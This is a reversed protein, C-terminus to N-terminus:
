IRKKRSSKEEDEFSLGMKKKELTGIILGAPNTYKKSSNINKLLDYIREGKHNIEIISENDEILKLILEVKNNISEEHYYNRLNKIHYFLADEGYQSINNIQINNIKCIEYDAVSNIFYLIGENKNNKFHMFSSLNDIKLDLSIHKRERIANIFRDKDMKKIYTWNINDEPIYKSIIRMKNLFDCDNQIFELLDNKLLDEIFNKVIQKERKQKIKLNIGIIKNKDNYKVFNHFNSKFIEVKNKLNLEKKVDNVLICLLEKLGKENKLLFDIKEAENKLIENIFFIHHKDSCNSTLIPIMMNDFFEYDHDEFLKLLKIIINKILYDNECSNEYANLLFLNKVIKSTLERKEKIDFPVNLRNLEKAYSLIDIIEKKIEKIPCEKKEAKEHLWRFHNDLYELISISKYDTEKSGLKLKEKDTSTEFFYGGWKDKQLTNVGKKVLDKLIEINKIYFLCNRDDEDVLHIDIGRELLIKYIRFEDEPNNNNFGYFLANTNDDIIFNVNINENLLKERIVTDTHKTLLNQNKSNIININKKNELLHDIMKSSFNKDDHNYFYIDNDDDVKNNKYCDLNLLYDICYFENFELLEKLQNKNYLDIVGKKVFYDLSDLDSWYLSLKGNKKDLPDINLVDVMYRITEYEAESFLNENNNNTEKPNLGLGVLYKFSEIDSGLLATSGNNNKQTYDVGLSILYEITDKPSYYLTTYGEENKFFPDLKYKKYLIEAIEQESNNFMSMNVKNHLPIKFNYKKQLLELQEIKVYSLIGYGRTNFHKFSLGKDILYKFKELSLRKKYDFLINFGERAEHFLDIGRKELFLMKEFSADFAANQNYINKSNVDLGNRLLYDIELLDESEFLTKIEPTKYYINM